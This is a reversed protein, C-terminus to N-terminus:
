QTLTLAPSPRARTRSRPLAPSVRSLAPALPCHGPRHFAPRHRLTNETADISSWLWYLANLASFAAVFAFAAALDEAAGLRLWERAVSCQYRAARRQSAFSPGPSSM